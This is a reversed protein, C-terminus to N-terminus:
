LKKIVCKKQAKKDKSNNDTLYSYAKARLTAFNKM